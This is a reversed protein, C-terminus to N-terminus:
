FLIALQNKRGFDGVIQDGLSALRVLLIQSKRVPAKNQFYNSCKEGGFVVFAVGRNPPEFWM